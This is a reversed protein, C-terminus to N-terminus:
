FFNKQLKEFKMIFYNYLKYFFMIKYQCLCHNQL